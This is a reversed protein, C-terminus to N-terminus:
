QDTRETVELGADLREGDLRVVRMAEVLGETVEVHTVGGMGTEIAQYRPHGASIMAVEKSRGIVLADFPARIQQRQQAVDALSLEARAV